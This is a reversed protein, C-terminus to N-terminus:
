RVHRVGATVTQVFTILPVWAQLRTECADCTLEIEIADLGNPSDKADRTNALVVYGAGFLWEGCHPCNCTTEAPASM